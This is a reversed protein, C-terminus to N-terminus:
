KTVVQYAKEGNIATEKLVKSQQLETLLLRLALDDGKAVNALIEAHTKAQNPSKRFETIYNLIDIKKMVLLFTNRYYPLHVHLTERMKREPLKLWGNM